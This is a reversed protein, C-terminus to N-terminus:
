QYFPGPAAGNIGHHPYLITFERAFRAFFIKEGWWNTYTPPDRNQLAYYTPRHQLDYIMICIM